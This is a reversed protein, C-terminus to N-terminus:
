LFVLAVGASLIRKVRVWLVVIALLQHTVTHLVNPDVRVRLCLDSKGCNEKNVKLKLQTISINKRKKQEKKSAVLTCPSIFIYRQCTLMHSDVSSLQTQKGTQRSGLKVTFLTRSFVCYHGVILFVTSM